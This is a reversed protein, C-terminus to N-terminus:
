RTSAAAPREVRGTTWESLRTTKFDLVDQVGLRNSDEFPPSMCCYLSLTRKGRAWPEIANATRALGGSQGSMTKGRTWTPTGPSNGSVARLPTRRFAPWMCDPTGALYFSRGQLHELDCFRLLQAFPFPAAWQVMATGKERARDGRSDESSVVYFYLHEALNDQRTTGVHQPWGLRFPKPPVLPKCLTGTHPIPSLM